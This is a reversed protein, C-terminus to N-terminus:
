KTGKEKPYELAERVEKSVVAERTWINLGVKEGSTVPLGAHLTRHDGKNNNLNKWFVANGEVPRFTVGKEFEEDCDLIDCWKEDAVGHSWDVLPFNTGGGTTDNRVHIYAFFSSKRNGGTAASVKSSPFWDNHLHYYEDPGYKVLQLPELHSTSPVSPGQFLSAREEICEIIPDRPIYASQSTRGKTSAGSAVISRRFKSSSAELLHTREASTLFNKIYIVLPSSSILHTQYPPHTCIFDNYSAFNQSSALSTSLLGALLGLVTKTARM